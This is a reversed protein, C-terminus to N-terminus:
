NIKTMFQVQTHDILHTFVLAIVYILTNPFLIYKLTKTSNYFDILTTDFITLIKIKCLKYVFVKCMWTRMNPAINCSKIRTSDTMGILACHVLLIM